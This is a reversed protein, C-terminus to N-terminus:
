GADLEIRQVAARLGRGYHSNFNRADNFYADGAKWAFIFGALPYQGTINTLRNATPSISISAPSDSRM